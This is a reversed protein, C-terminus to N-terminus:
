SSYWKSKSFSFNFNCWGVPKKNVFALLGAMRKEKILDITANRNREKTVEGWQEMTGPFHYFHCYCGAWDPNDSFAINDFFNLFDELSDPTLNKIIIDM